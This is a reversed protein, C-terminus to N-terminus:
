PLEGTIRSDQKRRDMLSTPFSRDKQHLNHKGSIAALRRNVESLQDDQWRALLFKKNM